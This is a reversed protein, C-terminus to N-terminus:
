GAIRAPNRSARWILWQRRWAALEAPAFADRQEFRHLAARLPALPLFAPLVAGPLAAIYEGAAALKRRALSRLEGLVANLSASSQGTFIQHPTIGYRDLIESPV